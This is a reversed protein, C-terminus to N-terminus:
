NLKCTYDKYAADIPNFSGSCDLIGGVFVLGTGQQNCFDSCSHPNATVGNCNSFSSTSPQM